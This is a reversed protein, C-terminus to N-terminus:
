CTKECKQLTKKSSYYKNKSFGNYLYSIAPELNNISKISVDALESSRSQNIFITNLGIKKAPAIDTNEQDGVVIVNSPIINYRGLIDDYRNGFIKRWM